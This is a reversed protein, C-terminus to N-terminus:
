EYNKQDTENNYSETYLVREKDTLDNQRMGKVYKHPQFIRGYYRDVSGCLSPSKDQM